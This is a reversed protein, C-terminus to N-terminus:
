FPYYMLLYYYRTLADYLAYSQPIPICPMSTTTTARTLLGASHLSIDDQPIRLSPVNLLM